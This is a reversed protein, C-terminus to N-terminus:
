VKGNQDVTAVSTDSSSWPISDISQANKPSVSLDIKFSEGEYVSKSTDGVKISSVLIPLASKDAKSNNNEETAETNAERNNEKTNFENKGNEVPKVSGDQTEYAFIMNNASCIFSLCLTMTILICICQKKLNGIRM